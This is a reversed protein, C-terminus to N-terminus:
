NLAPSAPDPNQQQPCHRHIHDIMEGQKDYKNFRHRDDGEDRSWAEEDIEAFTMTPTSRILAKLQRRVNRDVSSDVLQDRLLSEM